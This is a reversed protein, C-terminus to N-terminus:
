KTISICVKEKYFFLNIFNLLNCASNKFKNKVKRPLKKVVVCSHPQAYILGLPNQCALCGCYKDIFVIALQIATVNM